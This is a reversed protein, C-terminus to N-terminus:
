LLLQSGPSATSTPKVSTTTITTPPATTATSTSPPPPVKTSTSSTSTTPRATTSSSTSSPPSNGGGTGNFSGVYANFNYFTCTNKIDLGGTGGLIQSGSRSVHFQQSGVGMTFNHTTVGAPVDITVPANGGSQVTLQGPATLLTTVFVVDALLDRGNPPGLPDGTCQTNKPTPRYWYVLQDQNVVPASLGAKYAAIYPKMIIRWGDHPMGDAWQSSGDDKHHPEAPSIYHSEGFDNWTVIEILSPKLALM